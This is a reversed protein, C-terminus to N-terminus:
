RFIAHAPQRVAIPPQKPQRFLALQGHIVGPIVPASDAPSRQGPLPEAPPAAPEAIAAAVLPVLSPPM